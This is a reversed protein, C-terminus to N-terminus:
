REHPGAECAANTPLPDSSGKLLVEWQTFVRDRDFWERARKMSRQAMASRETESLRQAKRFARAISDPSDPDCKFGTAGDIVFRGVDGRDSVIPLVGSFCAEILANPFGELNSVLVFYRAGALAVEPTATVDGLRVVDQLGFQAVLSCGREWLARDTRQGFWHYSPPTGSDAFADAFGKLTAELNKAPVYSALTLFDLPRASPVIPSSEGVYANRVVSTRRKLWPVKRVFDAQTASNCVVANALGNVVMRTAVKWTWTVDMSRESVILRVGVGVSALAAYYTASILFGIVVDCGSQVMTRRLAQVLALKSLNSFDTVSVNCRDLLPRYFDSNAYRRYVVVEVHYGRAVLECVLYAFQREAGGPGLSEIVALVKM